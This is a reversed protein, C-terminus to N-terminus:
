LNKSSLNQMKLGNNTFQNNQRTRKNLSVAKGIFTPSTSLITRQVMSLKQNEDIYRSVKGIVHFQGDTLKAKIEAPDGDAIAIDILGIPRNTEPSIMIMELHKSKLYDSELM